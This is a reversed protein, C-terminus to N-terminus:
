HVGGDSEEPTRPSRLFPGHDSDAVTILGDVNTVLVPESVPETDAPALDVPSWSRPPTFTGTGSYRIRVVGPAVTTTALRASRVTATMRVEALDRTRLFSLFGRPRSRSSRRPRPRLGCRYM